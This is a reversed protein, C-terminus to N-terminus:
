HKVLITASCTKTEYIDQSFVFIRGAWVRRGQLEDSHWLPAIIDYEAFKFKKM